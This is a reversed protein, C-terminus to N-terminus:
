WWSMVLNHVRILRTDCFALLGFVLQCMLGRAHGDVYGVSFTAIERASETSASCFRVDIPERETQFGQNVVSPFHMNIQYNSPWKGFKADEDLSLQWPSLYFGKRTTNPVVRLAAGNTGGVKLAKCAVSDLSLFDMMVEFWPSKSKQDPEFFTVHIGKLCCHRQLLWSSRPPLDMAPGSSIGMTKMRVLRPAVDHLSLVKLFVNPAHSKLGSVEEFAALLREKVTPAGAKEGDEAGVPPALGPEEELCACQKVKSESFINWVCAKM